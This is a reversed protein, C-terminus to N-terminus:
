HMKRIPELGMMILFPYGFPLAVFKPNTIHPNSDGGRSYYKKCADDLQCSPVRECHLSPNLDRHM